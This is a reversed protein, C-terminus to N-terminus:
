GGLSPGVAPSDTGTLENAHVFGVRDQWQWPNIMKREM